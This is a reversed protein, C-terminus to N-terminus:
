TEEAVNRYLGFSVLDGKIKELPLSMTEVGVECGERSEPPPKENRGLFQQSGDLGLLVQPGVRRLRAVGLAHAWALKIGVGFLERTPELALYRLQALLPAKASL